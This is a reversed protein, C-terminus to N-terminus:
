LKLIKDYEGSQLINIAKQVEVDMHFAVISDRQNLLLQDAFNYFKSRNVEGCNTDSNGMLQAYAEISGDISIIPNFLIEEDILWRLYQDRDTRSVEIDCLTDTVVDPSVGYDTNIKRNEFLTMFVATTDKVKSISRGTPLLYEGVTLSISGGNSLKFNQQIMGKGFSHQGIIVARDLDQLSGALIESASASNNNILVVIRDIDLFNRGNSKYEQTRKANNITSVLVVNSERVFQNILKVTEDLLGGPNDRVDIILDKFSIGARKYFDLEEMAEAFVDNTFREIRLYIADTGTIKYSSVVPLYVDAYALTIDFLSDNSKRYVEISLTDPSAMIRQVSDLSIESLSNSFIEKIMDGRELGVRSAPSNNIVKTIYFSNDYDYLEFGRGAYSGNLYQSYYGSHKQDWYYSYDDLEEIMSGVVEDTFHDMSFEGYYKENIHELAEYIVRDDHDPVTKILFRENELSSQLRMGFFMGAIAVVSMLIPLYNEIIKKNM